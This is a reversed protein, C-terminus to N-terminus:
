DSNGDSLYITELPAKDLLIKGFAFFYFNRTIIAALTACSLLTSPFYFFLDITSNFNNGYFYFYFSHDLICGDGTGNWRHLDNPSSISLM